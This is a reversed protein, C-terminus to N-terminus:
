SGPLTVLGSSLNAFYVRQGPMINDVGLVTYTRPAFIIELTGMGYGLYHWRMVIGTGHRGAADAANRILTVGPIRAMVEYLAARLPGSLPVQVLKSIIWYVIQDPSASSAMSWAAGGRAAAAYLAARLAAPSTPLTNLAPYMYGSTPLPKIDKLGPPVAPVGTGCERDQFYVGLGTLPSPSWTVMCERIGGHPGPSVILQELYAAQDPKPLPDNQARAAAAATNLFDAALSYSVARTGAPSGGTGIVLGAAVAACLGVAAAMVIRGSRPSRARASPTGPQRAVVDKLEALLREEFPALPPESTRTMM